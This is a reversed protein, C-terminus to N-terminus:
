TSLTLLAAVTPLMTKNENFYLFYINIREMHTYAVRISSKNLTLVTSLDVGFGKIISLHIQLFFSFM